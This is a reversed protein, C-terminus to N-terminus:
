SPTGDQGGYAEEPCDCLRLEHQLHILASNAHELQAVLADNGETQLLKNIRKERDAIHRAITERVQQETLM